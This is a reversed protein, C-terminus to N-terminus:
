IFKRIEKMIEALPPSSFWRRGTLENCFSQYIFAVLEAMAPPLSDPGKAVLSKWNMRDKKKAAEVAAFWESKRYWVRCVEKSVPLGDHTFRCEDPTGLVDVTVLQGNEDIGLEIKGDENVLGLRQAKQSILRNVFLLQSKLEKMQRESLGSIAQAETWTLYRDTIELKTSVDFVPPDLKQGPAPMSSLGLDAPTIQGSSIRKFVSSGEPLANRYIVELPILYNKMGPKYASYDYRDGELKPRVVNLLKVDMVNSPKKLDELRKPTGDEVLGLYHTKMGARELEEFFWAGILTLATGKERILDPMEGWDFVSYRDSFTFRGRGPAEPTAPSLVALDKVSGM